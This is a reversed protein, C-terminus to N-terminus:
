LHSWQCSVLGTIRDAKGQCTKTSSSQVVFCDQQKEQLLWSNSNLIFVCTQGQPPGRGAAAGGQAVRSSASPSVFLGALLSLVRPTWLATLMFPLQIQVLVKFIFPCKHKKALGLFCGLREGDQHPLIVAYFEETADPCVMKFCSQSAMTVKELRSPCGREVPSCLTFELSPMRM